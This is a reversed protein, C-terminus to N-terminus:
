LGSIFKQHGLRFSLQATPSGECPAALVACREECPPRSKFTENHTARTGEKMRPMRPPLGSQVNAQYVGPTLVRGAAEGRGPADSEM